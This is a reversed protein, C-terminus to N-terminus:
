LMRALLWLGYTTLTIIGLIIIGMLILPWVASIYFAAMALFITQPSFENEEKAMLVFTACFTIVMGTIYWIPIGGIM